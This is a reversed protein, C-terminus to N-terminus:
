RADDLGNQGNDSLDDEDSVEMDSGFADSISEHRSPRSPPVSGKSNPRARKPEAQNSNQM